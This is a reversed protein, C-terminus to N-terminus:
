CLDGRILNAIHEYMVYSMACKMSWLINLVQDYLMSWM